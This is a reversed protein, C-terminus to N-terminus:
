RQHGHRLAGGSLLQRGGVRGAQGQRQEEPQMRASCRDDADRARERTRAGAGAQGLAPCAAVPLAGLDHVPKMITCLGECHLAQLQAPRFCRMRPRVVHPVHGAPQKASLHHGGAVHQLRQLHSRGSPRHHDGGCHPPLQLEPPGSCVAGAPRGGCIAADARVAAVRWTRSGRPQNANHAALFFAHACSSCVASTLPVKLRARPLPPLWLLRRAM